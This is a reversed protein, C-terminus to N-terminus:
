KTSEFMRLKTTPTLHKSKRNPMLQAFAGKAKKIRQVDENQKAVISSLFHFHDVQEIVENNLTISSVNIKHTFIM